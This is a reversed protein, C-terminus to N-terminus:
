DCYGQTCFPSLWLGFTHTARVEPAVYYPSGVLDRFREGHKFFVGSVCCLWPLLLVAQLMTRAAGFVASPLSPLCCYNFCAAGQM